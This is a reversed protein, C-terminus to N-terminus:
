HQRRRRPSRGTCASRASLPTRLAWAAVLLAFLWGASMTGGGASASSQPPLASPTNAPRDPGVAVAARLEPTDLRVLPWNPPMYSAPSQAYLLAQQVDLM